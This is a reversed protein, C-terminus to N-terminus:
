ENGMEQAALKFRAKVLGLKAQWEPTDRGVLFLECLRNDLELLMGDPQNEVTFERGSPLALIRYRGPEARLLRVAGNAGSNHYTFRSMKAWEEKSRYGAYYGNAELRARDWLVVAANGAAFNYVHALAPRKEVPLALQPLALEAAIAATLKQKLEEPLLQFRLHCYIIRSGDARDLRTVLPKSGVTALVKGGAPAWTWYQEAELSDALLSDGWRVPGSVGSEPAKLTAFEPVLREEAPVIDVKSKLFDAYSYNEGRYIVSDSTKSKLLGQINEPLFVETFKSSDLLPDFGPDISYPIYSHTVLKKRGEGMWKAVAGFDQKRSYPVTYFLFESDELRERLQGPYTEEADIHLPSFYRCFSDMSKVDWNWADMYHAVSRLTVSLVPSVRRKASNEFALEYGFAGALYTRWRQNPYGSAPDTMKGFSDSFWENHYEDFGSATVDFAQVYQALASVCPEGHGGQGLEFIAGLKKGAAQAARSYTPNHYFAGETNVPSGFYEMFPTGFDALELTKVLDVGGAFDEPNFTAQCAGGVAKAARGFRQQQRLHEYHFLSLFVGLNRRSEVAADPKGAEIETAPVYEEFSKLGLEAPSFRCGHYSEFYDWFFIRRFKGDRDRLLLGEDAEALDQRFAAVSAADYGWRRAWPWVLDVEKFNNNGYKAANFIKSLLLNQIEPHTADLPNGGTWAEGRSNQPPPALRKMDAWDQQPSQQQQYFAGIERLQRILTDAGPQPFWVPALVIEMQPFLKRLETAVPVGNTLVWKSDTGLYLVPKSEDPLAPFAERWHNENVRYRDEPPLKSEPAGAAALMLGATLAGVTCCEKLM